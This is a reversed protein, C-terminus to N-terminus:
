LVEMLVKDIFAEDITSYSDRYQKMKRAVEEDSMGVVHKTLWTYEGSSDREHSSLEVRDFTVADVPAVPRKKLGDLHPHNRLYQSYRRSVTQTRETAMYGEM